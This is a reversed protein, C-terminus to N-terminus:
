ERDSWVTAPRIRYCNRTRDPFATTLTVCVTRPTADEPLLRVRDPLGYGACDSLWIGFQRGKAQVNPWQATRAFESMTVAIGFTGQAPM